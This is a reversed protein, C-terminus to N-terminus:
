HKNRIKKSRLENFFTTIIKECETSLIDGEVNELKHNLSNNFYISNDLMNNSAGYYLNKIRASIIAGACMECPQLTVYIDCNELRWSKLKKCAKKIVNIEAHNIAQQKKEKTNHGRAIIEGDLVIIAGIPIDGKAGAKEAEKIAHLMLIEHENM